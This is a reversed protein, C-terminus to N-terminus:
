VSFTAHNNLSSVATFDSAAFLPNVNRLTRLKVDQTIKSAHATEAAACDRGGVGDFEGTGCVIAGGTRDAGGVRSGCEGPYTSAVSSGSPATGGALTSPFKIM